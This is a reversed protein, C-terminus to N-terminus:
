SEGRLIAEAEARLVIVDRDRAGRDAQNIWSNGQRVLAERLKREARWARQFKKACLLAAIWGDKPDLNGDDASTWEIMAEAALADIQQEITKSM